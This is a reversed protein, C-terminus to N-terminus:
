DSGDIGHTITIPWAATGEAALARIRSFLLLLWGFALAFGQIEFATLSPYRFLRFGFNLLLLAVAVVYSGALFERTVGPLLWRVGIILLTILTVLMGAAEDHLAHSAADNPFVGVLGLDVAVLILLWRLTTLRWNRPYQEHLQVFLYDVLAIMLLASMMLTLNFSWANSAMRTGLFSLNYQWWRREGNAAMSIVVGAIVVITLLTSLTAGNISLAATVMFANTLLTFVLFLLSATVLDFRAGPFMQGFVWFLGLLAVGLIVTFAVLIVPFNRWYIRPSFQNDPDHRTKIFFGAFLAVGALLGCGIVFSAVSDTGGTLSMSTAGQLVWYVYVGLTMLVAVALPWLMFLRRNRLRVAPEPRIVLGNNKVVLQMPTGATLGLQDCVDKPLQVSQRPTVQKM